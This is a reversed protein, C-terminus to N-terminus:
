SPRFSWNPIQCSARLWKRFNMPQYGSGPDGDAAGAPAMDGAARRIRRKFARNFAAEAEYGVEHAIQPIPKRGERLM